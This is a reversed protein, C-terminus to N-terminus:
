VSIGKRRLEAKQQDTLYDSAIQVQKELYAKNAECYNNRVIEFITEASLKKAAEDLLKDM